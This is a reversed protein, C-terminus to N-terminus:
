DCTSDVKRGTISAYAEERTLATLQALITAVQSPKLYPLLIQSLKEESWTFSSRHGGEIVLVLEGKINPRTLFEDYLQRLTSYLYEEFRKTMERGLFVNREGMDIALMDKLTHVVRHPSEFLITPTDATKLQTLQETRKRGRKALFGCFRFEHLAIPCVSALTMVASPGPIPVIQIETALAERVLQFGPDSVLPTGADSVIVVDQASKLTALIQATARDERADNLVIYHKDKEDIRLSQLLTKTRVVNECGIVSVTSLMRKARVSIDELNGIPTAVVYLCGVTHKQKTM